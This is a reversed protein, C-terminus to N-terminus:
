VGLPLNGCSAMALTTLREHVCRYHVASVFEHVLSFYEPGPKLRRQRLGLYYPDACM